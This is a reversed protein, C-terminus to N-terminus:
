TLLMHLLQIRNWLPFVRYETAYVLGSLWKDREKKSKQRNEDRMVLLALSSIVEDFLNSVLGDLLNLLQGARLRRQTVLLSPM